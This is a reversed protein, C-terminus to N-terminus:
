GPLPLAWHDVVKGDEVRIMDLAFGVPEGTDARAIRYRTAVTDGQSIRQEVSMDLGASSTAMHTWKAVWGQHGAPAGPLAAHDVADESILELAADLKGHLVAESMASVVAQPDTM